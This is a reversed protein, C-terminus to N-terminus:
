GLVHVRRFRRTEAGPKDGVVWRISSESTYRRAIWSRRKSFYVVVVADHSWPARFQKSLFLSPCLSSFLLFFIILLTLCVGFPYLSLHCFCIIIVQVFLHHFYSFFSWALFIFSSAIYMISKNKEGEMFWQQRASLCKVGFLADDINYKTEHFYRVFRGFGFRM